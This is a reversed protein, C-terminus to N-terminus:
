APFEVIKPEPIPVIFRGGCTQYETERKIIEPAFNWALLLAFDPHDALLTEPPRVPIWSGPCIKNQKFPTNDIVYDLDKNTLGCTNLLTNGKASAGYGIIRKGQSKLKRILAPLETQIKEVRAAFNKWTAPEVLKLRREKELAAAVSAHPKVSSSRNRIHFLISGGHIPYHNIRSLVFPSNQLLAELSRVSIYSL